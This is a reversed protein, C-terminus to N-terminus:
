VSSVSSPHASFEASTASTTAGIYAKCLDTKTLNEGIEFPSFNRDTQPSESACIVFRAVTVDDRYLHAPHLRSVCRTIPSSTVSQYAGSLASM